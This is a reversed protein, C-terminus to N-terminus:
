SKSVIQCTFGTVQLADTYTAAPTAPEAAGRRSRGRLTVLRAIQKPSEQLTETARLQPQLCRYQRIDVHELGGVQGSGGKGICQVPYLDQKERLTIM